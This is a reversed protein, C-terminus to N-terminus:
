PRSLKGNWENEHVYEIFGLRRNELQFTRKIKSFFFVLINKTQGYIYRNLYLLTAKRVLSRAVSQSRSTSNIVWVMFHFELSSTKSGRNWCSVYSVFKLNDIYNSCISHLELWETLIQHRGHEFKLISLIIIFCVSKTTISIVSSEMRSFTTIRLPPSKTALKNATVGLIHTPITTARHKQLTTTQNTDKRAQWDHQFIFVITITKMNRLIQRNQRQKLTEEERVQPQDTTRSKPM